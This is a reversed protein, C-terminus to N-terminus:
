VKETCDWEPCGVLGNHSVCLEYIEVEKRLVKQGPDAFADWVKVTQDESATVIHAGDSSFTVSTITDSHGHYTKLHTGSRVDWLQVTADSGSAILTDDPSFSVSNVCTLDAKLVKLQCRNKVNWLRITNDASGSVIQTGSHSVAVDYV